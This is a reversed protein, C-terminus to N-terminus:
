DDETQSTIRTIITEKTPLVAKVEAPLAGYDLRLQAHQSVKVTRGPVRLLTVGRDDVGVTERLGIIRARAEKARKESATAVENERLWDLVISRELDTLARDAVAPPEEAPCVDLYPCSDCYLREPPYPRPDDGPYEAFLRAVDLIWAQATEPVAPLDFAWERAMSAYLLQGPRQLALMYVAIQVQHAWPLHDAHMEWAQTTKIELVGETWIQDAFGRIVVGEIELEVEVDRRPRRKANLAQQYVEEQYMLGWRWRRIQQPTAEEERPDMLRFKEARLCGGLKSASLAGVHAAIWDNEARQRARGLDLIERVDFTTEAM